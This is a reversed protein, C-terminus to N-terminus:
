EDSSLAKSWIKVANMQGLVANIIYSINKQNVGLVEGLDMIVNREEDSFDYDGYSVAVCDRLLYPAFVKLVESNRYNEINFNCNNILEDAVQSDINLDKCLLHFITKEEDAFGDAAAAHVVASLYTKKDEMSFNEIPYNSFISSM